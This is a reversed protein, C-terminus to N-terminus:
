QLHYYVLIYQPIKSLHKFTSFILINLLCVMQHNYIVIDFLTYRSLIIKCISAINVFLHIM